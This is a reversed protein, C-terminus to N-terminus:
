RLQEFWDHLESHTYLVSCIELNIVLPFSEGFRFTYQLFMGLVSDFNAVLRLSASYLFHQLSHM